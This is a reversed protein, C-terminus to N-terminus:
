RKPLLIAVVISTSALHLPITGGCLDTVIVQVGGGEEEELCSIDGVSLEEEDM